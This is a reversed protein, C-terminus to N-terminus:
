LGKQILSRGKMEHPKDIGMLELITPAVDQQGGGRLKHAGKDVLIFNVPNTSHAPKPKGDAYLKDEASGHDATVIIAYGNKLGAKIVEGTCQDVVEVCKIIAKKVASHGVLDCNAFNILIFDYKRKEIQKAAEAAIEYASMQPKLDYSAVKASPIMIREEGPYPVEIQSNFFFTVHGYKETEALRLQLLGHEALVAGLNHEVKQESFAFPCNFTKDYETLTTFRVNPFAERKFGRFQKKTFAQTLQRPRDTRFNFFLVSDGDNIPKFGKITTPQIYYDTKDGRHYALEIAHAASDSEFGRGQTLMDYALMTRDWNNDRDMAFYRGCVSAIQGVGIRKCAKEILHVYQKASKEPVDRGDAFFHIFVQKLTHKAALELLAILHDTHAHVGQDSCLGILHLPEQMARNLVKNEFFGGSKIERNITEYMQWVIRGAGLHLHGVESNGQSGKPLGVANGSAQNASHPYRKLLNCFGPTKAQSIYNGPGPPAIGWGDQVIMIVRKMFGLLLKFIIFSKNIHDDNLFYFLAHLGAPTTPPIRAISICSGIPRCVEKTFM